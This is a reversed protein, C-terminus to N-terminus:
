PFLIVCISDSMDATGIRHTGPLKFVKCTFLKTIRLVVRQSLDQKVSSLIFICLSKM